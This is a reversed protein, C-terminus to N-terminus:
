GLDDTGLVLPVQLGDARDDLPDVSEFRGDDRQGVALEAGLGVLELTAKLAPTVAAPAALAEVVEEGLGEGHHALRAPAHEVHAV